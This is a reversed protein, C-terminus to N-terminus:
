VSNPFKAFINNYESVISNIVESVSPIDSIMGAVQGIELEGEQIDGDMMGTKTKAFGVIEIMEDKSAGKAEAELLQKTLENKLLRVPIAKKMTLVTDTPGAKTVAEKFAHHGSSEKTIAFRSGVQIGEAGLSFAAALHRGTAFGGAGLVPIKVANAVQPLLVMSTLEDPSNHGGAEVGEAVVGDVGAKEASVAQKPTALVQFVIGGAEKIVPVFKKPSGGSLFIIKIGADLSTRLLDDTMPHFIPINVGISKRTAAKAKEIHEALVDPTMSGSGILGLGGAESVAVALKYGSIWVMGGQVIPYEIGFLETIRTKIM